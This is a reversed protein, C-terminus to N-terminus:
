LIEMYIDITVINNEFSSIQYGASSKLAIGNEQIHWFIANYGEFVIKDPDGSVRTHLYNGQISLRSLSPDIFRSEETLFFGQFSRLHALPTSEPNDYYVGLVKNPIFPISANSLLKQVETAYRPSDAYDGLFSKGVATIASDIQIIQVKPIEMKYLSQDFIDTRHM